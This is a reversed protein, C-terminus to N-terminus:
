SWGLSLTLPILFGVVFGGSDLHSQSGAWVAGCIFVDLVEQGQGKVVRIAEEWEENHQM